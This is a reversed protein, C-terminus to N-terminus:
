TERDRALEALVARLDVVGVLDTGVLAAGRLFETQVGETPPPVPGVDVVAEVALGARRDSDEVVVIREPESTSGLDFLAALDVVPLVQGRLNRVGIVEPRAGPVATVEGLEDVELVAEVPLAYDEGALRVRVHTDSM